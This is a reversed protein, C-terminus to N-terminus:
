SVREFEVWEERQDVEVVRWGADRWAHAQTHNGDGENAWWAPHQWASAPLSGVLATIENFNLLVRTHGAAAELHERLPDYKGM